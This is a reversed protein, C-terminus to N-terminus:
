PHETYLPLERVAQNNLIFGAENELLADAEHFVNPSKIIKKPRQDM